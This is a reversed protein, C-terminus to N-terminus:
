REAVHLPSNQVATSCVRHWWPLSTEVIRWGYPAVCCGLGASGHNRWSGVHSGREPRDIPMHSQIYEDGRIKAVHSDDVRRDIAHSCNGVGHSEWQMYPLLVARACAQPLGACANKGQSFPRLGHAQTACRANPFLGQLGAGRGWLPAFRELVLSM